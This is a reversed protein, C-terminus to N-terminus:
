PWATCSACLIPLLFCFLCQKHHQCCAQTGFHANNLQMCWMGKLLAGLEEAVAEPGEEAGEEPGDEAGEEPGEEGGKRPTKAPPPADYMVFHHNRKLRMRRHLSDERADLMFHAPPSPAGAPAWLSWQGTLQRHLATWARALQQEEEELLQRSAARRAKDAACLLGSLLLAHCVACTVLRELPMTPASFFPTRPHLVGTM